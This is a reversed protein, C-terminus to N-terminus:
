VMVSGDSTKRIHGMQRQIAKSVGLYLFAVEFAGDGLGYVCHIFSVFVRSVPGEGHRAYGLVMM